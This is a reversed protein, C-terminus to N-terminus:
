VELPPDPSGVTVAAGPLAGATVIGDLVGGFDRCTLARMLPVPGFTAAPWSSSTWYVPILQRVLFAKSEEHDRLWGYGTWIPAPWTMLPQSVPSTPWVTPLRTSSTM